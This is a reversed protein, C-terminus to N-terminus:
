FAIYDKAIRVSNLLRFDLDKRPILAIAQSQAEILNFFFHLM